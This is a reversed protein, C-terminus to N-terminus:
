PDVVRFKTPHPEVVIRCDIHLWTPTFAPNEYTTMGAARFEDFNALIVALVERPTMGEVKVDAAGGLKHISMRAGTKTWPVRYGSEKYPGGRSYNNVIVPRGVKERLLDLVVLLEPRLFQVSTIGFTKFVYPPVLEEIRFFKSVKM